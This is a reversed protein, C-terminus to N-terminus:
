RGPAPKNFEKQNEAIVRKIMNLTEPYRDCDFKRAFLRDTKLLAEEDNPSLVIPHGEGGNKEWIIYRCIGAFDM